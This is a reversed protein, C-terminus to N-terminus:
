MMVERVEQCIGKKDMYVPGYPIGDWSSYYYDEYMRHPVDMCPRCTGNVLASAECM